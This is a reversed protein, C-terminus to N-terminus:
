SEDYTTRRFSCPNHPTYPSWSCQCWLGLISNFLKVVVGIRSGLGTPQNICASLYKM